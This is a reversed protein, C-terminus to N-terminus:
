SKRKLSLGGRVFRKVEERIELIVAEGWGYAYSGCTVCIQDATSRGIGKVSYFYVWLSTVGIGVLLEDFWIGLTIGGFCEFVM